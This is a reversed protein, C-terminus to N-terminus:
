PRWRRATGDDAVPAAPAFRAECKGILNLAWLCAMQHRRLERAQEVTQCCEAILYEQPIEQRELADAIEGLTLDGFHELIEAPSLNM